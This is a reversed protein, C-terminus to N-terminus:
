RGQKMSVQSFQNQVGPVFIDTIMNSPIGLTLFDKTESGSTKYGRAVNIFSHHETAMFSHYELKYNVFLVFSSKEYYM